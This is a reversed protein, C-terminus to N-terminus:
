QRWHKYIMASAYVCLCYMHLQFLTRIFFLMAGISPFGSNHNILVCHTTNRITWWSSGLMHLVKTQCVKFFSSFNSAQSAATIRCVDRLRAAAQEATLDRQAECLLEYGAMFKRVNAGRFLPPLYVAHLQWRCVTGFGRVERGFANVVDCRCQQTGWVMGNLLSVPSHSHEPPWARFLM